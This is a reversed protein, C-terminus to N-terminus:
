FLFDVELISIDSAISLDHIFQFGCNRLNNFAHGTIGNICNKKDSLTCWYVIFEHIAVKKKYFNDSLPM